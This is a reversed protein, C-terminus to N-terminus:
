CRRTLRRSLALAAAVATFVALILALTLTIGYLKRLGQRSLALEQYDPFRAAGPQCQTCDQGACASHGAALALRGYWELNSCLPPIPWHYFRACVCVPPSQLFGGEDLGNDHVPADDDVEAASYRGAIRLQNMVSSPPMDPLLTDYRGSSFAILRGNGSFVMAETVGSNERLSILLSSYQASDAKNLASVM